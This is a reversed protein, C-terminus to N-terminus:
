YRANVRERVVVRPDQRLKWALQGYGVDVAYVRRAGRQLLVDTFGGTSAGVDLAVRDAVDINFATLAADLKEGGRGVWKPPALVVLKEDHSILEGAKEIKRSGALVKGALILRRAIERSEVLGEEVLILDARKKAKKKEIREKLCTGRWINCIAM